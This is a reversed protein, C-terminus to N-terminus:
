SATVFRRQIVGLRQRDPLDVIEALRHKDGGRARLLPIEHQKRRGARRKVMEFVKHLAAFSEREM